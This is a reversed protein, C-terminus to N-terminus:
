RTSWATSRTRSMPTFLEGVQAALGVVVTDANPDRGDPAAPARAPTQAVPPPRCRPSRHLPRCAIKGTLTDVLRDVDDPEHRDFLEGVQAALGM